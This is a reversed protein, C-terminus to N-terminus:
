ASGIPGDMARRIDASMLDPGALSCVIASQISVSLRDRELRGDWLSLDRRVSERSLLPPDAQHFEERDSLVYCSWVMCIIKLSSCPEKQSIINCIHNKYAIRLCLLLFRM